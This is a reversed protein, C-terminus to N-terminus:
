SAMESISARSASFPIGPQQLAGVTASSEDGDDAAPVACLPGFIDALGVAAVALYGTRGVPNM